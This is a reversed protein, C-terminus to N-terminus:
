AATCSIQWVPCERGRGLLHTAKIKRPKLRAREDGDRGHAHVVDVRSVVVPAAEDDQADDGEGEEDEEVGPDVASDALPATTAAVVLLSGGGGGVCGGGSVGGCGGRCFCGSTFRLPGRRSGAVPFRHKLLGESIVERNPKM